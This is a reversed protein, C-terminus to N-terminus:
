KIKGAKEEDSVADQGEGIGFTMAQEVFDTRFGAAVDNILEGLVRVHATPRSQRFGDQPEQQCFRM